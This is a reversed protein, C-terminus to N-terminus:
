SGIVINEAVLLREGQTLLRAEQVPDDEHMLFVLGEQVLTLHVHERRPRGRCVRGGGKGITPNTRSSNAQIDHSEPFVSRALKIKRKTEHGCDYCQFCACPLFHLGYSSREAAASPLDPSHTLYSCPLTCPLLTYRTL